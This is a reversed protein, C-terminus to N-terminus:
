LDEPVLLVRLLVQVRPIELVMQDLHFYLDLQLSLDKQSEQNMQVGPVVLTKQDEPDM